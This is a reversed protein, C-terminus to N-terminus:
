VLSISILMSHIHWTPEVENTIEYNVLVSFTDEMVNVTKNM